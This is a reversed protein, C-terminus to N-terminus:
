LDLVGDLLGLAQVLTYIKKERYMVTAYTSPRVYVQNMIYLQRAPSWGSPDLPQTHPKVDITATRNLMPIVGQHIFHYM